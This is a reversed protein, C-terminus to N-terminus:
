LVQFVLCATSSGSTLDSRIMPPTSPHRARDDNRSLSFGRRTQRLKPPDHVHLNRGSFGTIAARIPGSRTNCRSREEAPAKVYRSEGILRKVDRRTRHRHRHSRHGVHHRDVTRGDRSLAIRVKPRREPSSVRSVGGGLVELPRAGSYQLRFGSEPPQVVRCRGSGTSLTVHGQTARSLDIDGRDTHVVADADLQSILIDGYVSTADIPARVHGLKIVGHRTSLKLSSDVSEGDIPGVANDVALRVGPPLSVRLDFEVSPISDGSRNSIRVERGLYRVTDSDTKSEGSVPYRITPYDEAPFSLGWRSRGDEAPVEVWRIDDILRRVDGEALEGVRLNAEVEVTPGKGPVLEVRGALNEFRLMKEGYEGPLVPHPKEDNREHRTWSERLPPAQGRGGDRGSRRATVRDTAAHCHPRLDGGLVDRDGLPRARSIRTM